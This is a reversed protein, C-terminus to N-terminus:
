QLLHTFTTIRKTTFLACFELGWFCFRHFSVTTLATIRSVCIDAVLGLAHYRTVIRASLSHAQRTIFLHAIPSLSPPFYFNTSFLLQSPFFNTLSKTTTVTQTQEHTPPQPRVLKRASCDGQRTSAAFFNPHPPGRENSGSCQQASGSLRYIGQNERPLLRVYDLPIRSTPTKPNTPPKLQTPLLSPTLLTLEGLLNTTSAPLSSFHAAPSSPHKGTSGCSCEPFQPPPLQHSPQTSIQESTVRYVVSDIVTVAIPAVAFRVRRRRTSITKQNRARLHQQERWNM